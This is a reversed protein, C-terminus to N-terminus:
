TSLYYKAKASKAALCRRLEQSEQLNKTQPLTKRHLEDSKQHKEKLMGLVPIVPTLRQEWSTESKGYVHLNRLETRINTEVSAGLLTPTSRWRVRLGRNLHVTAPEAWPVVTKSSGTEKPTPTM